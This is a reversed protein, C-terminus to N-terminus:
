SFSAVISFGAARLRRAVAAIHEPGVECCGGVISAGAEAWGLAITAYDEPGLDERAGLMEATDGVTYETPIPRFANAYAGFPKGVAALDPLAAAVSEPPACNALVAAVPLGDLAAAAEAITEGTRLRGTPKDDLNWSVWVPKGTMSAAEAAARAEEATAMTECLFLDVHPAQLRAIEAYAPLMVDYAPTLDPRYSWQYPPLCGAIRIEEGSLERAEVAAACAAAQLPEFLEPRGAPDLRSRTASYANLTIVRAGARIFDLHLDRVLEPEDLMVQASWMRTPERGSRRLLEQGMGGDLLVVRRGGEGRGASM